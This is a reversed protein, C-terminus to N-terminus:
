DPNLVRKLFEKLPKTKDKVHLIRTQVINGTKDLFIITIKNMTEDASPTLDHLCISAPMAGPNEILITTTQAPIALIKRPITSLAPVAMM